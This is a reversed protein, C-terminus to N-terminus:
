CLSASLRLQIDISLFQSSRQHCDWTLTWFFSTFTPCWARHYANSSCPGTPSLSPHCSILSAFTGLHHSMGARELLLFPGPVGDYTTLSPEAVRGWGTSPLSPLNPWGGLVLQFLM